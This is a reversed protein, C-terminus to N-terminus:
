PFLVPPARSALYRIGSHSALSLDDTPFIFSYHSPVPQLVALLSLLVYYVDFSDILSQKDKIGLELTIIAELDTHIHTQANFALSDCCEREAEIALQYPLHIGETNSLESLNVHAHVLPAFGQLLLLLCVIMQRTFFKM